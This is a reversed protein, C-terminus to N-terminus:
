YPATVVTHLPTDLEVAVLTHRCYDYDIVILRADEIMKLQLSKGFPPLRTLNAMPHDNM